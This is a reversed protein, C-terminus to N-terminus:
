TSISSHEFARIGSHEFVQNFPQMKKGVQVETQHLIMLVHSRLIQINQFAGSVKRHPHNTQNVSQRIPHRAALNAPLDYAAGGRDARLAPLRPSRSSGCFKGALDVNSLLFTFFRSIPQQQDGFGAHQWLFPEGVKTVLGVLKHGHQDGSRSGGTAASGCCVRVDTAMQAGSCELVRDNLALGTASGGVVNNNEFMRVNSCELMRANRLM